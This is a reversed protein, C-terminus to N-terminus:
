ATSSVRVVGTAALKAEFRKAAADLDALHAVLRERAAEAAADLGTLEFIGWHRLIELTRENLGQAKAHLVLSTGADRELITSRHGRLALDLALALGVPGAGVIIVPTATPTDQTATSM